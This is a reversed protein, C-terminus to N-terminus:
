KKKTGLFEIEAKFKEGDWRVEELITQLLLRKQRIDDMLDFTSNFTDLTNIVLSIEQINTNNTNQKTAAAELESKLVNVKESLKNVEDMIYNVVIDNQASSLRKVLNSIKNENENIENKIKEAKDDNGISKTSKYVDQLIQILSESSYNKLKELVINDVLDVRVNKNNCNKRHMKNSCVYYYIREGNKDIRGQKMLMNSGCKNCKLIGTFISENKSTGLRKIKKDSNKDLKKQVELWDDAAIIGEHNSIAYMWEDKDKIKKKHTKAYSVYGNGNPEGYVKKTITKLYDHTKKNSKVYIPNRLIKIIKDTTLMGGRKGTQGRLENEVQTCSQLEKYKSFLTKVLEMEENNVVLKAYSKQNLNEDLYEVRESDFGLPVNGGLWRGKRSLQIMNDTIREAISDRELQAFVSSIYLMAKGLPTSTDFQEKISVFDVRNDELLKFTSSFDVVSRSIRDLKYCILAQIKNNQIDKLLEQFKPRNINGGSFGEDEYILMKSDKGYVRTIYERCMSVQNEISDGTETLVSKRSYIAYYKM